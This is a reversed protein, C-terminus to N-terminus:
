VEKLKLLFHLLAKLLGISPERVQAGVVNRLENRVDVIDVFPGLKRTVSDGPDLEKGPRPIDPAPANTKIGRGRLLHRWIQNKIWWVQRVLDEILGVASDGKSGADMVSDICSDIGCKLGSKSFNLVSSGGGGARAARAEM